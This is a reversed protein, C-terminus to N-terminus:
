FFWRLLFSFSSTISFIDNRLSNYWTTFICYYINFCSIMSISLSYCLINSWYICTYYIFTFCKLMIHIVTFYNHLHYVSIMFICPDDTWQLGQKSDDLLIHLTRKIHQLINQSLDLGLMFLPDIVSNFMSYLPLYVAYCLM